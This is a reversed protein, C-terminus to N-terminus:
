KKISWTEKELNWDGSELTHIHGIALRRVMRGRVTDSLYQTLSAAQRFAEIATNKQGSAKLTLGLAFYADPNDQDLVLAERLDTEARTYNKIGYFAWGRTLYEDGTQAPLKDPPIEPKKSVPLVRKFMMEEEGPINL